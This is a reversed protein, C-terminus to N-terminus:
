LISDHRKSTFLVLLRSEALGTRGAGAASFVPARNRWWFGNFSHPVNQICYYWCLHATKKDHDTNLLKVSDYMWCHVRESATINGNKFILVMKHPMEIHPNHNKKIIKFACMQTQSLGLPFQHLTHKKQTKRFSDMPPTATAHVTTQWPTKKSVAM